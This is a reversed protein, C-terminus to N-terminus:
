FYVERFGERKEKKVVELIGDKTMQYVERSLTMTDSAQTSQEFLDRCCLPCKSKSLIELIERALTQSGATLHALDAANFM